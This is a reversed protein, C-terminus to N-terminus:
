RRGRQDLLVGHRASARGSRDMGIFSPATHGTVRDSYLMYRAADVEDDGYKLPVPRAVHPNKGETVGRVWRYKRMGRILRPCNRKHVVLRPRRLLPNVRLLNRVYEIGNDVSNAAATSPIGDACFEQILMPRSPDAYAQGFRQDNVTWPWRSKIEDRREPYLVTGTDEIYEDFIGWNGAGDKMGWLCVFPHEVSEGWDIGRKISHGPPISRAFELRGCYRGPLPRGFARAWGEDDVVHIAPNFNPYIAGLFQPFAGTRRTELLEESVSAFFGKKWDARIATNLETNLRFFSWDPLEGSLWLDYKEEMAISLDPDLPTFEIFASGDFYYDRLRGYLEEVVDPECQESIWFGGISRGQFHERGQDVSRFEISWNAKAGPWPKLNVVFPLRQKPRYWECREWDIQESPIIRSLKEKWCINGVQRYTDSVVMFPTDERPPKQTWLMFRAAKQAACETKGSGTGGMCVSVKSQSDVFATQQDFKEPQDARPEFQYLPSNYLEWEAAFRQLETQTM